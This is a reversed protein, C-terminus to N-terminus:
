LNFVIQLVLIVQNVFKFSAMFELNKPTRKNLENIFKVVFNKFTQTVQKSVM